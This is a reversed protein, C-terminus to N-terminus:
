RASFEKKAAILMSDLSFVTEVAVPVAHENTSSLIGIDSAFPRKMLSQPSAHASKALAEGYISTM